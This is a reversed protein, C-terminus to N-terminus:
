KIKKQYFNVIKQCTKLFFRSIGTWRSLATWRPVLLEVRHVPELRTKQTKQILKNEFITFYSLMIRIFQM